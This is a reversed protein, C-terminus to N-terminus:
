GLIKVGIKDQKIIPSCTFNGLNPSKFYDTRQANQNICRFTVQDLDVRSDGIKFLLKRM